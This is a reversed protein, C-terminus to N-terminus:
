SMCNGEVEALLEALTESTMPITLLEQGDPSRKRKVLDHDCFETLHGKLSGESSALFKERCKTYLAEFPLGLFIGANDTSASAQLLEALLSFIGRANTTLSNLVTAAGRVHRQETQKGLVPAMYLTELTYPSFTPVHHWVWNFLATTHRDWLLPANVHDLSAVLHVGPLRSLEALLYQAGPTSLASGDLSHLVLYCRQTHAAGLTRATALLEDAPQGEMAGELGELKLSAIVTTIIQSVHLTQHFGNVVLVAGDTLTRSAFEELLLKKSGPGHLLLNFGCKLQTLWKPFNAAHEEALALRESHHQVPLREYIERLREESVFDFDAADGTAKSKKGRSSFYAKAKPRVAAKSPKNDASRPDARPHYAPDKTAADHGDEALSGFAARGARPKGKRISVSVNMGDNATHGRASGRPKGM